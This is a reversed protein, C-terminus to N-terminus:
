SIIHVTPIVSLPDLLATQAADTMQINAHPTWILTLNLM